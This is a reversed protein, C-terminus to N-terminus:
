VLGDTELNQTKIKFHMLVEYTCTLHSASDLRLRGCIGDEFM